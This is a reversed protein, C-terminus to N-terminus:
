SLSRAVAEIAKMGEGFRAMSHRHQELCGDGLRGDGYARGRDNAAVWVGFGLARGLDRLWGQIETHTRDGDRAAALM